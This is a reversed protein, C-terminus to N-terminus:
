ISIIHHILYFSVSTISGNTGLALYPKSINTYDLDKDYITESIDVTREVTNSADRIEVNNFKTPHSYDLLVDYDLIQAQDLGYSRWQNLVYEASIRDGLTGALKPISTLYKLHQRINAASLEQKIRELTTGRETADEDGILSEYYSQLQPDLTGMDSKGFGSLNTCFLGILFGALASVVFGFLAPWILNKNKMIMLM